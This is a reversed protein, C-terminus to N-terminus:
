RSVEFGSADRDPSSVASGSTTKVDGTPFGASGPRDALSGDSGAASQMGGVAASHSEGPMSM